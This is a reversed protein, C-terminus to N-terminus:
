LLKTLLENMRQVQVMMFLSLSFLVVPLIVIVRMLLLFSADTGERKLCRQCYHPFITCYRHFLLFSVTIVQLNCHAPHMIGNCTKDALDHLYIIAGLILWITKRIHLLLLFLKNMIGLSMILLPLQSWWLACLTLHPGSFIATYYVVSVITHLICVPLWTSAIMQFVVEWTNWQDPRDHFCLIVHQSVCGLTPLCPYHM